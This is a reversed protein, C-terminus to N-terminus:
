MKINRIDSSRSSYYLYKSHFFKVKWININFDMGSINWKVKLIIDHAEMSLSMLIYVADFQSNFGFEKM